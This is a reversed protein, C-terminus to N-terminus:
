DSPPMDPPSDPGPGPGHRWHHKGGEKMRAKMKAELDALQTKQAPTLVAYLKARMEGQASIAQTTLAGNDQAVQSVLTSYNADDPKTQHLKEMNTRMQEHLTRVQKGNSEFIAKVQAKQDASLGLQDFMHGPGHQWHGAPPPSSTTSTSSPSAAGASLAAVCALAALGAIHRHKSSIM